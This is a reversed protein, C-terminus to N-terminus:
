LKLIPELSTLKKCNIIYDTHGNELTLCPSNQDIVNGNLITVDSFIDRFISKM